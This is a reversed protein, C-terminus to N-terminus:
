EYTAERKLKTTKLVPGPKSRQLEAQIEEMTNFTRIEKKGPRIANVDDATRCVLHGLKGTHFREPDPKEDRGKQTWNELIKEVYAWKRVGQRSAEKLADVVWEEAYYECADRLRESELPTLKGFGEEVWITFANKELVTETVQMDSSLLLEGDPPSPPLPTTTKEKKINNVKIEKLKSQPNEPTSVIDMCTNDPTSIGNNPTIVPKQPIPRKRNKYVDALNNVLNQCWIVRQKWLEKDIAEMELLLVLIAEGTEENVHAKALLTQWKMQNRCDLYHGDAASLRELLKFWFAYGDNGFRSELVTLTDGSSASSIHPFYDVTQKPPRAM